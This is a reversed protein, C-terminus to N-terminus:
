LNYGLFREQTVFLKINCLVIADGTKDELMEIMAIPIRSSLDRVELRKVVTELFM